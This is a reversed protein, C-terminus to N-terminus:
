RCYQRVIAKLQLPSCFRCAKKFILWCVCFSYVFRSALWKQIEMCTQRSAAASGMWLHLWVCNCLMDYKTLRSFAVSMREFVYLCVISKALRRIRKILLSILLFPVFRYWLLEYRCCTRRRKREAKEWHNISAECPGARNKSFSSDPQSSCLFEDLFRPQLLVSMHQLHKHPSISTLCLLGLSFPFTIVLSSTSPRM